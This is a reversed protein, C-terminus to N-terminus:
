RRDAGADFAGTGLAIAANRRLEEGRIWSLGLATKRFFSSLADDGAGAVLAASVFAGPRREAPQLLAEAALAPSPGEGRRGYARASRPCAAACADCGYLRMGWARAAAEPMEGPRTAWAQLCRDLDVGGPGIAGTPCADVCARCSGCGDPGAIAPAGVSAPAADGYQLGPPLLLAGPAGKGVLSEEGLRLGGPLLLAGPAGKGVLSEEGLRLGEPLLLAGPAGKGVLSEEGLRLGEPLLLAGIVCAPGYAETVLLSSRGIFGLGALAALRKEPLRSNVVARFSRAPLGSAGALARGAALLLRTLAAYRNRAAFAGIRLYPPPGGPDDGPLDDGPLPSPRPDYPLAAVVAGSSELLGYRGVAAPDARRALEALADPGAVAYASLGVSELSSAISVPPRDASL